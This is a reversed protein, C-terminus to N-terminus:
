RVDDHDGKPKRSFARDRWRTDSVVHGLPPPVPFYSAGLTIPAGDGPVATLGAFRSVMKQLRRYCNALAKRQRGDSVCLLVTVGPIINRRVDDCLVAVLKTFGCERAM